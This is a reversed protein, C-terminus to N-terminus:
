KKNEKKACCKKNEKECTEKIGSCSILFLMILVIAIWVYGIYLYGQYYKSHDIRKM